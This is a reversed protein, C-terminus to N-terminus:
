LVDGLSEWLDEVQRMGKQLLHQVVHILMETWQQMVPFHPKENSSEQERYNEQNQQLM